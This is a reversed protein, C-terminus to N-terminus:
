YGPHHSTREEIARLVEEKLLGRIRAEPSQGQWAASDDDKLIAALLQEKIAGKHRELERWTRLEREPFLDLHLTVATLAEPGEAIKLLERLVVLQLAMREMDTLHETEATGKIGSAEALRDQLRGHRFQYVAGAQRLVGRRHADELFRMLRLPTKGRITLWLHSVQYWAWATGLTFGIALSVGGAAGLVLGIAPGRSLSFIAGILAALVVALGAAHAAVTLRDARLVAAPGVATAYDAPLSWRVLGVAIGSALAVATGLALGALGNMVLTAVVGVVLGPALGGSVVSRIGERVGGVRGWRVNLRVPQGPVVGFRVAVAATITCAFGITLGAVLGALPGVTLGIATASIVVGGLGVIAVFCARRVRTPIIQHLEWWAFDRTQRQHLHTALFTLWRRALSADWRLRVNGNVGGHVPVVPDTAYTAPILRDLLYKEISDRSPFRSGDVLENPNTAPAHYVIRALSVMLPSSLALAIPASPQRRLTEVVERWRQTELVLGSQLYAIADALRVPELEIVAAGGLAGGQHVAGEYEISRCTLVLPKNGIARATAAVAVARLPAAIEDLGDLIPLIRDSRVLREVAAPGYREENRLQPYEENIRRILWTQLHEHNPNWTSVPLLVPVPESLKRPSLLNRRALLGLTLLLAFVTKGAGPQGLVVLQRRPLKYFAEVNEKLSGRFHLRLPRGGVSGALVSGADAAVPLTTTRWLVHLPEPQHLSRLEAEQEWQSKILEALETAAQDLRTSAEGAREGHQQLALILQWAGVGLGALGLLTSIVTTLDNGGLNALYLGLALLGLSLTAGALNLFLRRHARFERIV